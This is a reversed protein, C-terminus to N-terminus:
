YSEDEKEMSKDNYNEEELLKSHIVKAADIEDDLLQTKREGFLKEEYSWVKDILKIKILPSFSIQAFYVLYDMYEYLDNRQVDLIEKLKAVSQFAIEKPKGSEDIEGKDPLYKWGGAVRILKNDILYRVITDLQSVGKEGHIEVIVKQKPFALKNKVTFVESAIGYTKEIGNVMTKLDEKRSIQARISSYFKIGNGGTSEWGGTYSGIEQYVQNVIVFTSETLGLDTTIKRLWHWIVRPKHTIGGSFQDEKEKATPCAAITDWVFFLKLNKEKAKKLMKEILEFGADVTDIEKILYHDIDCKQYTARVYDFASESELWVVYYDENDKIKDKWYECFSKSLLLSLTSKGSSPPGFIEIIKGAPVGGGFQLDLPKVGFSYQHKITSGLNELASVVGLEKKIDDINSM